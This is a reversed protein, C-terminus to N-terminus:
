AQYITDAIDALETPIDHERLNAIITNIQDPHEIHIDSGSVLEVVTYGSNKLLACAQDYREVLLGLISFDEM